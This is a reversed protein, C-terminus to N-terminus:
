GEPPWIDTLMKREQPCRKDVELEEGGLLLETRGAEGTKGPERGRSNFVTAVEVGCQTRFGASFKPEAAPLRRQKTWGM